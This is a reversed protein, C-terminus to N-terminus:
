KRSLIKEFPDQTKKKDKDKVQHQVYQGDAMFSSGAGGGPATVAPGPSGMGGGPGASVGGGGGAGGASGDNPISAGNLPDVEPQGVEQYVVDAEVEIPSAGTVEPEGDQGIRFPVKFLKVGFRDPVSVVAYKAGDQGIPILVDEVVPYQDGFLGSESVSRQLDNKIDNISYAAPIVALDNLFFPRDLPMAEPANQFIARLRARM